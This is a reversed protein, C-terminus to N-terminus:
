ASGARLLLSAWEGEVRRAAPALGCPEFAASVADTETELMGSCILTEPSSGAADLQRACDALLPSTLNAVVTSALPPAGDRVDVREISLEVGNAEANERAAELSVLERDCGTVPDFGLKAAAIALVGSGTGWDVLPGTAEGAEDLDILSALCLRTTPHAGTGFAQGPDIILDITGEEADWWPPRVRIRGGVVVPKHFDAWRDAWDDPVSSTTVEVLSDGAAAKLEGLEPIEGPGGYVAYEVFGPGREEEVGNPALDLLNALVEEAAAPECRVALRIM